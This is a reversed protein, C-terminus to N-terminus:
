PSFARALRVLPAGAAYGAPAGSRTHHNSPLRYRHFKPRNLLRAPDAWASRRQQRIPHVTRMSDRELLVFVVAAIEEDTPNGRIVRLFSEGAPSDAPMALPVVTRENM